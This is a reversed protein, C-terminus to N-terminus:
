NTCPIVINVVESGKRTKISCTKKAPKPAAKRVPAAMGLLSRKNVEIMEDTTDDIASMLALSLNGSSQAHALAAVQQPSAAVTVTRAISARSPDVSSKQDIAILRVGSDILRTVTAGRDDGSASPARGTWYVDVRDEPRLFGSVGSSVDVEIAFARQGPKLRATVGPTAGPESLKTSLVPEYKEITFLAIRPKQGEVFLPRKKSFRMKPVYKLPYEVLRVDEETIPEGFSIKRNAVYIRALPIQPKSKNRENELAEQYAGVYNQAMYVAGGALAIGLVLVIGFIFKM